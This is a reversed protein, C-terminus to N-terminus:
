MVEGGAVAISQGTLAASGPLCLWAVTDAVEEPRVLRGQPNSKALEARAADESMGTKKVINGIAEALLDTETFGPCVANVTVGKAAVELALARTLGIVGHKAACYAAVYRYGILGATSAVNVIRGWGAALMAPLAAHTVLYTGTLNVRLMEDWLARDTKGFPASKAVGANNILILPAGHADCAAQYASAIAHPDTVDANAYAIKRGTAMELSRARAALTGRWRGILTLDAGLSALRLAIAAGIGRGGGTVLAARGALPSAASAPESMEKVNGAKARREPNPGSREKTAAGTKDTTASRSM